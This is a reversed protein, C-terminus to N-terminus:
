LLHTQHKLCHDRTDDSIQMKRSMYSSDDTTSVNFDNINNSKQTQFIEKWHPSDEFEEGDDDCLLAKQSCPIVVLKTPVTDYCKRLPVTDHQSDMIVYCSFFFSLGSCPMCCHSKQTLKLQSILSTSCLRFIICLGDSTASRLSTCWTLAVLGVLIEKCSWGKWRAGVVIVTGDWM